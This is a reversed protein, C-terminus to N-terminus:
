APLWEGGELVRVLLGLFDAFTAYSDSDRALVHGQARHGSCLYDTPTLNACVGVAVAEQGISLHPFGPVEGDAALRQVHSEFLRIRWLQEYFRCLTDLTLDTVLLM